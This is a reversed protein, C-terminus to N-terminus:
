VACESGVQGLCARAREEGRSVKTIRMGDLELTDWRLRCACDWVDAQNAGSEESTDAKPWSVFKRAMDLGVFDDAAKYEDFQAKIADASEQAVQPNKFRWLPLLESKYPEVSLVGTM